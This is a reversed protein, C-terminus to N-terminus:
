CLGQQRCGDVITGEGALGWFKRIYCNMCFAFELHLLASAIGAASVAPSVSRESVSAEPAVGQLCWSCFQLVTGYLQHQRPGAVLHLVTLTAAHMRLAPPSAAPVLATNPALVVHHLLCTCKLVAGM